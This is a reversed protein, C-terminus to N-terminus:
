PYHKKSDPLNFNTFAMKEVNRWSYFLFAGLLLFSIVFRVFGIRSAPDQVKSIVPKLTGRYLTTHAVGSLMGCRVRPPFGRCEYKVDKPIYRYRNRGLRRQYRCKRHYSSQYWLAPNIYRCIQTIWFSLKRVSKIRSKRHVLSKM